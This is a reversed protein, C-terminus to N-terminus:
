HYLYTLAEAGDKNFDYFMLSNEPGQVVVGCKQELWFLELSNINMTDAKGELDSAM